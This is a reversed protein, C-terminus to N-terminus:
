VWGLAVTMEFATLFRIGAIADVVAFGTVLNRRM